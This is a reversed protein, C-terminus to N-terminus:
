ALFLGLGLIGNHSDVNVVKSTSAVVYTKKKEYNLRARGRNEQQKTNRGAVRAEGRGQWCLVLKKNKTNQYLVNQTKDRQKKFDRPRM